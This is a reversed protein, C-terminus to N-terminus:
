GTGVLVLGAFMFAVGTLKPPHHSEGFVIIGVLAGLPISLQRFAVVYSVNSVFAMAILVLTYTVYIGAGALGARGLYARLVDRLNHREKKRALVFLFLWISASLGEFFAYVVTAATSSVALNPATRLIRLAHDDALSYGTTGLAAVLALVTVRRAYNSLRTDSFHQMPLMLSGGAISLIGVLAQTSLQARRGLLLSILTVLIVPISRALPYAISIDGAQYAGALAAYYLAQSFGALVSWGWVPASFAGFAQRYVFMAPTLCLAGLTNAVLLFAATPHHRKGIMNWGVHTVASILILIVATHSM